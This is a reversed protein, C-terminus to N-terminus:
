LTNVAYMSLAIRSGELRGERAEGGVTETM